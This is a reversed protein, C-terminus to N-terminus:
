LYKSDVGPRPASPTATQLLALIRESVAAPLSAQQQAEHCAAACASAAISAVIRDHASATCLRRQIETHVSGACPMGASICSTSMSKNSLSSWDASGFGRLVAKVCPRCMSAHCAEGAHSQLAAALQGLAKGGAARLQIASRDHTSGVVFPSADRDGSGTSKSGGSSKQRGMSCGDGGRPQPRPPPVVLLLAADLPQGEPTCALQFLAQMHFTAHM